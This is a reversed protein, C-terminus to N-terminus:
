NMNTPNMYTHLHLQSTCRPSLSPNSSLLPPPSSIYRKPFDGNWRDEIKAEEEFTINTLDPVNYNRSYILTFKLRGPGAYEWPAM